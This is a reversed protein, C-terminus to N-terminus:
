PRELDRAICLLEEFLRLRVSVPRERDNGAVPPLDEAYHFTSDFPRATHHVRINRLRVEGFYM